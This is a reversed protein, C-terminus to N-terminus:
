FPLIRKITGCTGGGALSSPGLGFRMSPPQNDHGSGHPIERM